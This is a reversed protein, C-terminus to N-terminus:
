KTVNDANKHPLIEEKAKKLEIKEIDFDRPLKIEFVKKNLKKNILPKIFRIRYVDEETSVAVIKAPMGSKKDIWFDITTYDDKYISDPKVKLNLQILQPQKIQTQEILEIEFQKKM